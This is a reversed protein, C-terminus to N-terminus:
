KFISIRGNSGLLNFNELEDSILDNEVILYFDPLRKLSDNYPYLNRNRFRGFIAFELPSQKLKILISADMPVISDIFKIDPIQSNDNYLLQEYYDSAYISKRPILNPAIENIKITLYNGIVLFIKNDIAMKEYINAQVKYATAATIVPKSTNFLIVSFGISLACILIIGVVVSKGFRNSPILGGVLPTYTAIPIIFYRGQYPDWGPRQIVLFLTYSVIVLISFFLYGRRLKSNACRSSFIFALPLLTFSIPGFWANDESLPPLLDYNFNEGDSVGPRIFKQSELDIGIWHTFKYFFYSKRQILYRESNGIMGDFSVFQYFLRSSNYVIKGFMDHTAIMNSETLEVAGFPLGTNVMNQIYMYSSFTLFSVFLFGLYLINKLKLVKSVILYIIIISYAPLLFFATQKTGLALALALLAVILMKLDFSRIFDFTFLFCTILLTSVILDGQFTFAQLLVVPFSLFVLASFLGQTITMGFLESFRYIVVVAVVLSFWQVSFFLSENRSFLFLWLGQLHANIPYTNQKSNSAIYHSLNGHQLWYYIRPLHTHLSDLNNPPTTSGILYLVLLILGIFGILFYDITKYYGRIKFRPLSFIISGWKKLQAIVVWSLLACITFQLVLYLISNSLLNFISLLEGV